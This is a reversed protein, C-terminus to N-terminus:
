SNSLNIIKNSLIRTSKLSKKEKLDLITNNGIKAKGSEM